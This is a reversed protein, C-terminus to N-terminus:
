GTAVRYILTQLIVKMIFLTQPANQRTCATAAAAESNAAVTVTAYINYTTSNTTCMLRVFSKGTPAFTLSHITLPLPAAISISSAATVLSSAAIPHQSAATTGPSAATVRRRDASAAFYGLGM